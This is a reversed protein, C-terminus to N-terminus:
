PRRFLPGSSAPSVAPLSAVRAPLARGAAAMKFRQPLACRPEPEPPNGGVGGVEVGGGRFDLEGWVARAAGPGLDGRDGGGGTVGFPGMNLGRFGRNRRLQGM